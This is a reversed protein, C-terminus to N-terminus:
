PSVVAQPAHCARQVRTRSPRTVEERAETTLLESEHKRLRVLRARFMNGRAAAISEERLCNRVVRGGDGWRDGDADAGAGMM